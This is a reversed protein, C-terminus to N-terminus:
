FEVTINLEVSNGPAAGENGPLAEAAGVPLGPRLESVSTERPLSVTFDPNVFSTGGADVLVPVGAFWSSGSGFIGSGPSGSATSGSATVGPATSGSAGAGPAADSSGSESSGSGSAGAGSAADSSRASDSAPSFEVTGETVHLNLTDFEFVTGRVSATASSSRVTFDTRGGQVPKVDARVRGAQLRLEIKENDQIRSLEAISLRTLPRVTLLSNGLAIVATSKFGTSIQTESTLTQGRYAAAWNQAQPGRVEVTGALDRITADVQGAQAFLGAAMFFLAAGTLHKM